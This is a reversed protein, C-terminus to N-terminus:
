KSLSYLQVSVSDQQFVQVPQAVVAEAQLRTELANTPVFNNWLVIWQPHRFLVTSDSTSTTASDAYRGLALTAYSQLRDEGLRSHVLIREYDAPKAMDLDQLVQVRRRVAAAGRLQELRALSPEADPGRGRALVVVTAGAPVERDLYRAVRYSLALHPESTQHRVYRDAMVLGVIAGLAAVGHRLRPLASLGLAALLTVAVLPIHAERETVTREPNQGYGMASFLIAVLFLVLYATLMRYAPRTFLRRKWFVVMGGVALALTPLGAYRLTVAGLHAWRLLREPNSSWEIAYSGTPTIGRNYAIWGLPAWGFLALGVLASRPGAGRKWAYAGALVPCALWAEYRTLCAVGLSLSALAWRETFAFHFAFVLGALMLIEQYPVVSNALIFPSTAFLLSGDLAVSPVVLDSLLLYFGAGAVSGVVAMFWRVLLPGRSIPALFHIAAQLLPLNHSLVIHNAKALRAITDNGFIIPYRYILYLRVVLSVAVVFAIHQARTSGGDAPPEMM